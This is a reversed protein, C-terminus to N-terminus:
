LSAGSLEDEIAKKIFANLTTGMKKATLAARRHLDPNVRVNFAGAYSKQIETIGKRRCFDLYSEVAEEFARKLENVSQGEFSVMSTIGEIHGIFAEDEESYQVTAIFDKYKLINRMVSIKTTAKKKALYFVM